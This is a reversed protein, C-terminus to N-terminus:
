RRIRWVTGEDWNPVWVSDFGVGVPGAFEGAPFGGLAEVATGTQGDIRLLTTPDPRVWADRGDANVWGPVAGGPGVPLQAVVQDTTPDVQFVTSCGTWVEGSDRVWVTGEGVAVTAPATSALPIQMVEETTPDVRLLANIAEIVVWLSGAGAWVLGPHLLMVKADPPLLPIHSVEQGSDPDLRRLVPSLGVIKPIWLADETIAAPSDVYNVVTTVANTMPDIRHLASGAIVWLAGRGGRLGWIMQHDFDITSTVANTAPDIRVLTGGRHNEVWIANGTVVSEGPADVGGADGIRIEALLREGVPQLPIPPTCDAQPTAPQTRAPSRAALPSLALLGAGGARLAARRSLRLQQRDHANM